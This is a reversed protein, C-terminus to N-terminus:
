HEKKPPFEFLMKSKLKKRRIDKKKTLRNNIININDKKTKILNNIPLSKNIDKLENKIINNKQKQTDPLIIKPCIDLQKIKDAFLNKFFNNDLESQARILYLMMFLLYISFYILVILNGINGKFISLNFSLKYCKLVKYNSFKLVDYFSTYISKAGTDEENKEMNIESSEINCECKLDNNEVSYDSFKCNPQCKAENNNYYFDIRDSLLIDTGNSSEYPTCIDQYFENNIDFIDYGLDKLEEYLQQTEQSLIVPVHIDIPIESCVSLNLRTMKTPEYVEYQLNRESSITTLREYKLIILSVNKDINYTDRLIDECVGLDIRSFQNTSNKKGGVNDLDNDLNTIHYFFNDQGKIVLGEKKENLDEINEM